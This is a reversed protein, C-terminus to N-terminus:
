ELDLSWGAPPDFIIHGGFTEFAELSVPADVVMEQRCLDTDCFPDFEFPSRAPEGSGDGEDAVCLDWHCKIDIGFPALCAMPHSCDVPAGDPDDPLARSDDVPESEKEEDKKSECDDSSMIDCDDPSESTTESAESSTDDDGSEKDKEEDKETGETEDAEGAAGGDDSGEADPSDPTESGDSGDSSETDDSGDEGPSTEFFLDTGPFWLLDNLSDIGGGLLAATGVFPWSHLARGVNVVAHDREGDFGNRVYEVSTDAVAGACTRGTDFCGYDNHQMKQASELVVGYRFAYGDAKADFIFSFGDGPTVGIWDRSRVRGLFQWVEHPSSVVPDPLEDALDETIMESVIEFALEIGLDPHVVVFRDLGLPVSSINFTVPKAVAVSYPGASATANFVTTAM